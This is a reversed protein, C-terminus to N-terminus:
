IKNGSQPLDLYIPFAHKIDPEQLIPRSSLSLLNPDHPYSNQATPTVDPASVRGKPHIRREVRGELGDVTDFVRGARM